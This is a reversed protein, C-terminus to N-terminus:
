YTVYVDTLAEEPEPWAAAKADTWAQDLAGTVRATIADLEEATAVGHSIVHNRVLDIPDRDRFGAV